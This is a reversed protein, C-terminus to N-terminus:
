SLHPIQSRWKGGERWGAADEPILGYLKSLGQSEAHNMKFNLAVILTIFSVLILVFCSHIEKKVVQIHM